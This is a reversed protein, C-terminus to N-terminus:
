MGIYGKTENNTVYASAVRVGDLDVPDGVECWTKNPGTVSCSYKGGARDSCRAVVQGASLAAQLPANVPKRKDLRQQLARLQM